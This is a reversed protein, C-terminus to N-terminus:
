EHSDRRRTLARAYEARARSLSSKVTGVRRDLAAAVECISLGEVYHLVLVAQHKPAIDLLAIMALGSEVTEGGQGTASAGPPIAM